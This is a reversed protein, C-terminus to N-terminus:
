KSIRWFSLSHLLWLLRKLNIELELLNTFYRLRGNCFLAVELYGVVLRLLRVVKCANLDLLAVEVVARVFLRRAVELLWDVNFLFM